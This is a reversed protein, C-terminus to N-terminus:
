ARLSFKMLIPRFIVFKHYKRPFNHTFVNTSSGLNGEIKGLFISIALKTLHAVVVCNCSTAKIKVIDKNYETSVYASFVLTNTCPLSLRYFSCVM